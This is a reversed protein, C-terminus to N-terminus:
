KSEKLIDRIESLIEDTSERKTEKIEEQKKEFKSKVGMVVKLAIFICFSVVLFDIVTKIFVGYNLATEAETIVGDAGVVAEKIVWKWDSVDIGGTLLSVLPMIIDGVLSSVIKSFAGGVVVAVAMDVVNGKAIFAKFEEFFKKM